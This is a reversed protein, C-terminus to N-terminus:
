GPSSCRLEALCHCHKTKSKAGLHTTVVIVVSLYLLHHNSYSSFLDSGQKGLTVQEPDARHYLHATKEQAIFIQM